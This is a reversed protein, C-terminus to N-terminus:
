PSAGLSKLANQIAIRNVADKEAALATKLWAIARPKSVHPNIAPDLDEIKWDSDVDKLRFSVGESGPEATYGLGAEFRGLVTYKVSVTAARLGESADLLEYQSVVTFGQWDPNEKWTTLPKLRVWSDKLLRFGQYDMRCYSNVVNRSSDRHAIGHIPIQAFSCACTLLITLQLRYLM